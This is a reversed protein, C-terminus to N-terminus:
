KDQKNNNPIILEAFDNTDFDSIFRKDIFILDSLFIHRFWKNSCLIPKYKGFVYSRDHKDKSGYMDFFDSIEQVTRIKM